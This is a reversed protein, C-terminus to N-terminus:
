KHLGLDAINDDGKIKIVKGGKGEFEKRLKISEEILKKKEISCNKNSSSIGTKSWWKVILDSDSYIVKYKNDKLAIKLSYIFSLLEAGNNQQSKVDDFKCLIINRTQNSKTGLLKKNEIKFGDFNTIIMDKENQDVVSGWAYPKTFNNFCGDCYLAM